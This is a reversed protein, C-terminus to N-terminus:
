TKLLLSSGIKSWSYDQYSVLDQYRVFVSFLASIRSCFFSRICKDYTTKRTSFALAVPHTIGARSNGDHPPFLELSSLSLCCSAALVLESTRTHSAPLILPVHTGIADKGLGNGEPFIFIGLDHFEVTTIFRQVHSTFAKKKDLTSSWAPGTKAFRPRTANLARVLDRIAQLELCVRSM